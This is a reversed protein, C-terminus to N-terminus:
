VTEVRFAPTEKLRQEMQEFTLFGEQAGFNSVVSSANVSALMLSKEINWNTYELAATFTSSLADGAGLTSVVKAPFEPCRYYKKGDYAYVGHKGDTIIVVKADTSKLKDLMAKIDPHITESSYNETKTDPRVEIKTVLSAEEKNMVVVEATALIKEFYKLGKKLSSSGPNIAVNTNNEEAFQAIKDLVAGSAGNLPAIYLWKANKIAEYNIEDAKVTGNTGRHALVTRNGEFSLLIISFGSTEDKSVIVNSTDVGANKVRHMINKGQFDEGIKFIASTKYGLNALNAAANLGGGGVATQFHDIEVKAGYPFAMFETSSHKTSVSVIDAADSEVFADITASGITIFDYMKERRKIEPERIHIIM